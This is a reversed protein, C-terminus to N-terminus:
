PLVTFYGPCQGVGSHKLQMAVLLFDEKPGGGPVLVAGYFKLIMLLCAETFIIEEKAGKTVQTAIEANAAPAAAATGVTEILAPEALMVEPCLSVRVTVSVLAAEIWTVPDFPM